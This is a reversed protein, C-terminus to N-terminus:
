ITIQYHNIIRPFNYKFMNNYVFNRKVRYLSINCYKSVYSNTFENVSYLSSNGDKYSMKYKHM